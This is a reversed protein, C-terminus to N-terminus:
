EWAGTELIRAPHREPAPFDIGDSLQAVRRLRMVWSSSDDALAEKLILQVEAQQSRGNRAARAALADKVTEDVHRVLLDAM